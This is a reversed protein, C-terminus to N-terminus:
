KAGAGAAKAAKGAKIRVVEGAYRIGTGKYPEPKKLDRIEAAVEGVVQKDAGSITIVNKEVKATIGAPINYEVQHSFGLSMQLKTGVVAAKFGVGNIELKKEYGTTVGIIMNKVLSGFLGWLANNSKIGPELVTIIINKDKVEITISPHIKQKLEGKPGKVIVVDGDVRAEVKEPIVLPKKGVRSM